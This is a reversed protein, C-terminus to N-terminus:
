LESRPATCAVYGRSPAWEWGTTGGWFGAALIGDVGMGGPWGKIVLYDALRAQWLNKESLGGFAALLRALVATSGAALIAFVRKGGPLPGIAMLGIDPGHFDCPGIGISGNSGFRMDPLSGDALLQATWSNSDPGGLLLLNRNQPSGISTYLGHTDLMINLIGGSVSHLGNGILVAADLLQNVAGESLTGVVALVPGEYVTRLSGAQEPSRRAVSCFKAASPCLHWRKSNARCCAYSSNQLSEASFAIGDVVIGTRSMSESLRSPESVWGFALLNETQIEWFEGKNKPRAIRVTTPM